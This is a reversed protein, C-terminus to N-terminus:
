EQSTILQNLTSSFYCVYDMEQMLLKARSLESDLETFKTANNLKQNFEVWVFFNYLIMIVSALALTTPKFEKKSPDGGPALNM